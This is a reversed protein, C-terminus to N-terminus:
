RRGTSRIEATRRKWASYQLSATALAFGLLVFAGCALFLFYSQNETM